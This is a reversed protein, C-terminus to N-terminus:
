QGDMVGDNNLQKTYLSFREGGFEILGEKDQVPYQVIYNNRKLLNNIMVDGCIDWAFQKTSNNKYCIDVIINCLEEANNCTSYVKQKFEEKLIYSQIVRDEKSIKYRSVAQMYQNEKIISMYEDYIKKVNNYNQETFGAGSTLISYDFKNNNTINKFNNFEKEIKWCICNMVSNNLLVPMKLYYYKLFDNEEKTKEKKHILEEITVGFRMLCNKNSNKTYTKYNKMERPYNYIFFYPKKDALIKLNLDANNSKKAFSYSYWEKPMTKCIIGKMKDIANQQYNQGCIIRYQLENYETSDKLFSSALDIMATIRNTTTGIEDGFGNKNSQILDEETVAKKTASKQVCLVAPLEKTNRLLVENDTTLIEDGDHDAGNLAHCTTDWSNFITVTDMHKYWYNVEDNNLLNLVRINNHCTMPARFAVVKDVKKDNWYKSYFQGKKLLGTVKLGFISQCLSYPDSSITSFNGKVKLVGIKADNIRKFIMKHITSRVFPDNIMNKEITLADAVDNKLVFDDESLRIGKLFLISKAVDNGLVDHIEQVTPQILEDIDEDSLEYSQIFQYNLNRENELKKPTVKTISFVYNNKCCNDWYDEFSSYSDWLKLMSTTLVIKIKRIDRDNNWVDKVIYTKAVKESFDLLDFTFLFGKCFANRVCFGAATYDLGLEESWEKGLEPTIIGNGDSEEFNILYDSKYELKPYETQTDDLLIVDDYFSTYCDKVVLINESTLNSSSKLLPTSVSCALAKYAELKAPVLKKSTDRGNELKIHLGDYIDESVYVVTSQKVGGNTALLRKYKTGNIFFGKKSNMRDFDKLKDIVICIYDKVFLLSYKQKYLNKIKNKNEVSVPQKKIHNIQSTIESVLHEVNKGKNIFRLVESDAISVLENNNIAEEMSLELSWKSQRLRTSHIKYIYKLSAQQKPL